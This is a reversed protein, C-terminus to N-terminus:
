RMLLRLFEEHKAQEHPSLSAVDGPTLSSPVHSYTNELVIRVQVGAAHKERLAEAIHPLNLEQVAIDIRESARNIVDTIVEELNDGHRWIARYPDRYVSARSGNFYVEIHPPSPLPAESPTPVAQLKNASDPWPPEIRRSRQLILTLLAVAILFFVIFFSFNSM